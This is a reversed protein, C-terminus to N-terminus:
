RRNAWDLPAAPQLTLDALVVAGAGTRGAVVIGCGDSEMGSSAPPDVAVVIRGRAAGDDPRFM